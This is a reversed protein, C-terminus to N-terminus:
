SVTVRPLYIWFDTGFGPRSNVRVTGGSQEVIGRVAPLGLGTGVGRKKTTFFPEFIRSVTDEDMGTGNDRVAISVYKGEPLDLGKVGDNVNATEFTLRGGYPMAHRANVALNVIVQEMRGADAKVLGLGPELLAVLEVNAGVAPHLVADMESLLRNLDLLTEENRKWSLSLLQRTLDNARDAAKDIQVANRYLSDGVSVQQKILTSYGAIITLLNKFDHAVGGALSAFLEMRQADQFQREMRQMDTLDEVNCLVLLENELHLPQLRFEIPFETGGKRRATAGISSRYAREQEEEMWQTRDRIGRHSGPVLMEFPAGVIEQRGYGFMQETRRNGLVIRGETNFVVVADSRCELLAKSLQPSQRLKMDTKEVSRKARNSWNMM